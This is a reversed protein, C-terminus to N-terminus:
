NGVPTPVPTNAGGSQGGQQEETPQSSDEGSGHNDDSQTNSSNSSSNDELKPPMEIGKPRSVRTFNINTFRAYMDVMSLEYENTVYNKYINPAYQHLGELFKGNFKVTFVTENSDKLLEKIKAADEESYNKDIEEEEVYKGKLEYFDGYKYLQIKDLNDEEITSIEPITLASQKFFDDEEKRYSLCRWEDADESKIFMGLNGEYSEYYMELGTNTSDNILAIHERKQRYNIKYIYSLNNQQINASFSNAELTNKMGNLFKKAFDTIEQSDTIRVGEKGSLDFYEKLDVDKKLTITCSMLIPAIGLFMLFNRFKM